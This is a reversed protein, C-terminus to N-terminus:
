TGTESRLERRTRARRSQDGRQSHVLRGFERSRCTYAYSQLHVDTRQRWRRDCAPSHRNTSTTNSAHTLFCPAPLTLSTPSPVEFIIIPQTGDSETMPSTFCFIINAPLCHKKTSSLQSETQTVRLPTRINPCFYYKNRNWALLYFWYSKLQSSPAWKRQNRCLQPFPRGTQERKGSPFLYGYVDRTV